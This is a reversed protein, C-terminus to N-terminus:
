SAATSIDTRMPLNWVLNFYFYPNFLQVMIYTLSIWRWGRPRVVMCTEALLARNLTKHAAELPVTTCTKLCIIQSWCLALWGTHKYDSSPMVWFFPNRPYVLAFIILWQCSSKQSQKSKLRVSTKNYNQSLSMPGIHSLLPWDESM